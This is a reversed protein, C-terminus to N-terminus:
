QICHCYQYLGQWSGLSCLQREQYVSPLYMNNFYMCKTPQVVQNVIRLMHAPQITIHAATKSAAPCEKLLNSPMFYMLLRSASSLDGGQVKTKSM